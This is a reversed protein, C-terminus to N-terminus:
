LMHPTAHYKDKFRIQSIIKKIALTYVCILADFYFYPFTYPLTSLSTNSIPLPVNICVYLSVDFCTPYKSQFLSICKSRHKRRRQTLINKRGSMKEIAYQLHCCVIYM